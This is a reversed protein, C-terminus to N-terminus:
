ARGRIVPGKRKREDLVSQLARLKIELDALELVIRQRSLTPLGIQCRGIHELAYEWYKTVGLITNLPDAEPGIERRDAIWASTDARAHSPSADLLPIVEGM